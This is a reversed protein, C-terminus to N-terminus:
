VILKAQLIVEELYKSVFNQALKLKLESKNSSLIKTDIDPILETLSRLELLSTKKHYSHNEETLGLPDFGVLDVRFFVAICETFWEQIKEESTQTVESFKCFNDLLTTLNTYEEDVDSFIDQSANFIATKDSKLDKVAKSEDNFSFPSNTNSLIFELKERHNLFVLEKVAEFHRELKEGKRRKNMEENSVSHDSSNIKKCNTPNSGVRELEDCIHFAIKEYLLKGYNVEVQDLM